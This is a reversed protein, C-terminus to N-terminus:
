QKEALRHIPEPLKDRALRDIHPTRIDRAGYAGSDAYGFDDILIFIISPRRDEVAQASLEPLSLILFLGLILPSMRQM